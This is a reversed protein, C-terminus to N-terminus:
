ATAMEVQRVAYDAITKALNGAFLSLDDVSGRLYVTIDSEGHDVKVSVAGDAHECHVNVTVDAVDIALTANTTNM